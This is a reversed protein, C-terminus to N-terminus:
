QLADELVEGLTWQANVLTQYRIRVELLPGVALIAHALLSPDWNVRAMEIVPTSAVCPQMIAIIQEHVGGLNFSRQGQKLNNGV